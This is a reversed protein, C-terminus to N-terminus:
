EVLQENGMAPAFAPNEGRQLVFCVAYILAGLTEVMMDGMTDILGIDIYGELEVGNVVVSDIQRISGVTNLGNGLLRSDISSLFVDRQMDRGLLQDMGFEYFEWLAAVAVSFCIAFAARLWVSTERERNLRLPLFAGLMAFHIGGITHLLKDWIPIRDYLQWADGMMSGMCYLICFLYVDTRIRCKLLRESAKPLLVLAFAAMCAPYSGRDGQSIAHLLSVLNFAEAMMVAGFRITHDSENAKQLARTERLETITRIM